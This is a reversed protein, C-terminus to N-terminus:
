QENFSCHKFPYLPFGGDAPKTFAHRFLTAAAIQLSTNLHRHLRPQIPSPFVKFTKAPAETRSPWLKGSM